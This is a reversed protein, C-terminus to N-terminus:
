STAVNNMFINWNEQVNPLSLASAWDVLSVDHNIGRYDIFYRSSYLKKPDTVLILQMQFQLIAHDSKAFPPYYELNNILDNDSTIILDLISPQQGSRFRTPETVIQQLHSDQVFDLLLRSSANQPVPHPWKLDRHNFDGAIILNKYTSALVSLFNILQVYNNYATDPPRYVCCITFSLHKNHFLLCIAEFGPINSPLVTVTFQSFVSDLVYICVGGGTSLRDNRFITYGQVDIISNPIHPKLWSETILMIAPKELDMYPVFENLKAM